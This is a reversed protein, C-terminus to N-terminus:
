RIPSCVASLDNYAQLVHERLTKSSNALWAHTAQGFVVMGIQASLAALRGEVGRKQLAESLASTMTAAKALQREQLSPTNAVIAAGPETIHRNNEVMQEVSEFAILLTELPNLGAPAAEVASVLKAIFEAQEGFFIDRKDSFHRFFTRESVGVRAAIEAATTNDFGREAFLELAAQQLQKRVKTGDRPM